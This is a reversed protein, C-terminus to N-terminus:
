GGSSSSHASSGFGGRSVSGAAVSRGKSSTGRSVAGHSIVRSEGTPAVAIPRGLDRNWYYRPGAYSYGSSASTRGASGAGAVTGTSDLSSTAPTCNASDGWDSECDEKTTYFDQKLEQEFVPSAFDLQSHVADGDCGSLMSATGLVLLAIHRSRKM